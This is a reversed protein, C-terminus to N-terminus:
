ASQHQFLVTQANAAPLFLLLGWVKWVGSLVISESQFVSLKSLIKIADHIIFNTTLEYCVDVTHNWFHSRWGVELELNSLDEKTSKWGQKQNVIWCGHMFSPHLQLPNHIPPASCLATIKHASKKSQFTDNLWFVREAMATGSSYTAGAKIQLSQVGFM